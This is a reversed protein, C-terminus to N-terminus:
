QEKRGAGLARGKDGGFVERHQLLVVVGIGVRDRDAVEGVAEVAARRELGGPGGVVPLKRAVRADGQLFFQGRETVLHVVELAVDIEVQAVIDAGFLVLEAHRRVAIRRRRQECAQAHFSPSGLLRRDLGATRDRRPKGRKAKPRSGRWKSSTASRRLVTAGRWLRSTPRCLRSTAPSRLVPAPM